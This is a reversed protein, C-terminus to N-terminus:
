IEALFGELYAKVIITIRKESGQQGYKQNSKLTWGKELQFKDSIDVLISTRAIIRFLIKHSFIYHLTSYRGLSCAQDNSETKLTNRIVKNTFFFIM